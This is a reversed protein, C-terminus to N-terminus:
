PTKRLFAELGDRDPLGAIAGARTTALAGTANARELCAVWDRAGWGAISPAPCAPERALVSALLGATFGDGAGTADAFAVPYGPAFWRGARTTVSAGAAGETVAVAQLGPHRELLVRAAAEPSEEGAVLRLEDDGLKLLGTTELAGDIVEALAAADPWLVPRVNPDFVVLGGAGRVARAAALVHARAAPDKLILSGFYLAKLTGLVSAPLEDPGLAEDACAHTSFAALRRDGNRTTVVYAMRTQRGPARRMLTTDLAERRALAVLAEGFPDDGVCGAFGARVGLRALAVGVNLPAGGPAKVFHEATELGAGRDTSVWDFLAEGVALVEM